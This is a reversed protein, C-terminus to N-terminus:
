DDLKLTKRTEERDKPPLTPLLVRVSYGGELGEAGLFMWDGIADRRVKAKDGAKLSKIREPDSGIEGEFGESTARPNSIWLWEAEAGEVFKAKVAFGRREGPKGLATDFEAVTARAEVIAQKMAPDAEDLGGAHKDASWPTEWRATALLQPVVEQCLKKEDDAGFDAPTAVTLTVVGNGNCGAFSHMTGPETAEASMATTHTFVLEGLKFAPVKQEAALKRLHLQAEAAPVKPNDIGPKIRAYRGAAAPLKVLLANGVMRRRADAPLEVSLRGDGIRVRVVGAPPADQLLGVFLLALM